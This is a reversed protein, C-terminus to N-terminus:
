KVEQLLVMIRERLLQDKVPLFDSSPKVYEKVAKRRLNDLIDPKLDSPSTLVEIVAARLACLEARERDLTTYTPSRMVNAGLKTPVALIAFSPTATM